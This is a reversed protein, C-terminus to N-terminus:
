TMSYMTPIHILEHIYKKKFKNFEVYSGEITERSSIKIVDKTLTYFSLIFFMIGTDNKPKYRIDASAFIVITKNVGDKSKGTIEDIVEIDIM